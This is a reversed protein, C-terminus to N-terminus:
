SLSIGGFVICSRRNCREAGRAQQKFFIHLKLQKERIVFADHCEHGLLSAACFLAAGISLRTGGRAVAFTIKLPRRSDGKSVVHLFGVRRARRAGTGSMRHCYTIGRTGYKHVSRSEICNMLYNRPRTFCRTCDSKVHTAHDQNHPQSPESLRLSLWIFHSQM